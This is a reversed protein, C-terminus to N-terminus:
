GLNRLRSSKWKLRVLPVTALSWPLSGASPMAAKLTDRDETSSMPCHRVWAGSKAVLQSDNPVRLSVKSGGMSTDNTYRCTERSDNQIKETESPKKLLLVGSVRVWVAMKSRSTAPAM